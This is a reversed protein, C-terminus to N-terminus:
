WSVNMTSSFYRLSTGGTTNLIDLRLLVLENKKIRRFGDENSVNFLLEKKGSSISFDSSKADVVTGTTKDYILRHLRLTGSSVDTNILTKISFIVKGALPNPPIMAVQKNNILVNETWGDYISNVGLYASTPITIEDWVGYKISAMGLNVFNDVNLTHGLDCRTTFTKGGDLIYKYNGEYTNLGLKFNTVSEPPGVFTLISKESDLNNFFVNNLNFGDIGGLRDSVVLLQGEKNGEIYGGEILISNALKHQSLGGLNNDIRIGYKENSEINCNRLAHSTGTLSVGDGGNKISIVGDLCYANSQKANSTKSTEIRVGDRGNFSSYCDLFKIVWSDSTGYIGDEINNHTSVRKVYVYSIYLGNKSKISLGKKSKFNGDISFYDLFINQNIDKDTDVIFSIVESMESEAVFTTKAFSLFQIQKGFIEITRSVKIKGAPLIYTVNHSKNKFISDFIASNEEATNDKSIGEESLFVVRYVDQMDKLKKFKEDISEFRYKLRDFPGRAEVIENLVIGEPAVSELIDRISEFWIDFNQQQKIIQENFDIIIQELEKKADTNIQLFADLVEELRIIYPESNMCKSEISPIIDYSFNQTTDVLNDKEDMIKFYAFNIRVPKQMDHVNMTYVIKGNEIVEAYQEVPAFKDFYTCFLVKRNKLDYPEGNGDVINFGLVESNVNNQRVQILGINNRETTSLTGVWKIKKVM